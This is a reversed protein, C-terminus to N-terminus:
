TLTRSDKDTNDNTEDQSFIHYEKVRDSISSMIGRGEGEGGGGGGGGIFLHKKGSHQFM